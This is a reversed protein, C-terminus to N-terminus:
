GFCYCSNTRRYLTMSATNDAHGPLFCCVQPTHKGTPFNIGVSGLLNEIPVADLAQQRDYDTYTLYGNLLKFEDDSWRNRDLLEEVPVKEQCGAQIHSLVKSM